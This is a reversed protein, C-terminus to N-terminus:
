LSTATAAKNGRYINRYLQATSPIITLRPRASLAPSAAEAAKYLTAKFEKRKALQRSMEFSIIPGVSRSVSRSVQNALSM